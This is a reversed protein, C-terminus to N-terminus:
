ISSEKVGSEASLGFRVNDLEPLLATHLVDGLFQTLASGQLYVDSLRLLM